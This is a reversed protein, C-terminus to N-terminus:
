GTLLLFPPKSEADMCNGTKAKEVNGPLSNQLFSYKNKDTTGKQEPIMSATLPTHQRLETMAVQDGGIPCRQARPKRDLRSSLSNLAGWHPAKTGRERSESDEESEAARRSLIKM